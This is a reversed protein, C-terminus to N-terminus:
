AMVSVYTGGRALIGATQTSVSDQMSSGRVAMRDSENAAPITDGPSGTQADRGSQQNSERDANGGLTFAVERGESSAVTLSQIAPHSDVLYAKMAAMHGELTHAAEQSAAVLTAHVNGGSVDARVGVWGLAPDQYGAEARKSGTHIWSTTPQNGSGDLVAFPERSSQSTAGASSSQTEGSIKNNLSHLSSPISVSGVSEQLQPVSNRDPRNAKEVRNSETSVRQARLPNQATVQSIETSAANSTAGTNLEDGQQRVSNLSPTNHLVDGSWLNSESQISSQTEFSGAGSFSVQERMSGAPSLSSKTDDGSSAHLSSPKNPQMGSGSELQDVEVGQTRTTVPQSQIDRAPHAADIVPATSKIESVPSDFAATATTRQSSEAHTSQSSVDALTAQQVVAAVPALTPSEVAAEDCPVTDGSLATSATIQLAGAPTILSVTDISSASNQAGADASASQNKSRHTTHANRAGPAQSGKGAPNVGMSASAHESDSVKASLRQGQKVQGDPSADAAITGILRCRQALEKTSEPLIPSGNESVLDPQGDIATAAEAEDSTSISFSFQSQWSSRFDGSVPGSVPTGIGLGANGAIAEAAHAGALTMGPGQAMGASADTDMLAVVNM